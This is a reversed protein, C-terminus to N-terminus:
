DTRAHKGSAAGRPKASKRPKAPQVQLAQLVAAPLGQFRALQADLADARARQASAEALADTLKSQALELAMLLKGEETTREKSLQELRKKLESAERRARDIEAHSRDETARVHLTMADREIRADDQARQLATQLQERLAELETVRTQAASQHHLNEQVQGQLQLVLRELEASRATALQERQGALESTKIRGELEARLENRELALAERDSLLTLRDSALDAAAREHAHQLALTWWQGALIQVAEPAGPASVQVAHDELRRGLAKWWTDLWRTVTNPSGTGLHARIREVTPREGASVLADAAQHVDLESIGRAM